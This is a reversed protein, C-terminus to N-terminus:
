KETHIPAQSPYHNHIDLVYYDLEKQFKEYSNVSGKRKLWKYYGSRSM